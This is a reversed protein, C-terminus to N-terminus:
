GWDYQHISHPLDPRHRLGVEAETSSQLRWRLMLKVAVESVRYVAYTFWDILM